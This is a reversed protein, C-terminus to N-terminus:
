AEGGGVVPAKRGTEMADTSSSLMTGALSIVDLHIWAIVEFWFFSCDDWSGQEDCHNNCLIYGVSNELTILPLGLLCVTPAQCAFGSPLIYPGSM